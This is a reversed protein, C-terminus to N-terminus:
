HKQKKGPIYQPTSNNSGTTRRNETKQSAELNNLPPVLKCGWWCHVLAGKEEVGVGVTKVTSKMIVSIRVPIFRYRITTKIQMERVTLMTSCRKMHRNAM